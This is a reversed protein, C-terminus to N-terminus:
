RWTASSGFGSIESPRVAVSGGRRDAFDQRAQRAERRRDSAPTRKVGKLRKIQADAEAFSQPYPFSQGANMALDKLYNLQGPTPKRIHPQSNTM